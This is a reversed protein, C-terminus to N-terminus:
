EFRLRELLSLAEDFEYRSVLEYLDLIIKNDKISQISKIEDILVLSDLDSHELLEKLEDFMDKHSIDVINNDKKSQAEIVQDIEKIEIKKAKQRNQNKSIDLTITFYFNSGRNKESDVSISGHMLEVLKKVISLGLGTGGFRRTTSNDEQTFAEFLRDINDKEIGIGTDEVSLYLEVKDYEIYKISETITINGGKPTFKIANSILNILIQELRLSDGLLVLDINEDTVFKLDVGKKEADFTMISSINDFINYVSFDIHELEIKNAELKSVDLLSNVISLLMKSSKNAKQLMQKQKEDTISQLVINTMNLIVNIPTRVEHSINALLESKVSNAQQAHEKAVINEKLLKQLNTNLKYIREQKKVIEEEYINFAQYISELENESLGKGGKSIKSKILESTKNLKRTLYLTFISIVIFLSVVSAVILTEFQSDLKKEEAIIYSKPVLKFIHAKFNKLHVYEKFVLYEKDEIDVINNDALYEFNLKDVDINQTTVEYFGDNYHILSITDDVSDVITSYQFDQMMFKGIIVGENQGNQRNKTPISISLILKELSKDHYMDSFYTDNYLLPKRFVDKNFLFKSSDKNSDLESVSLWEYSNQAVASISILSLYQKMYMEFLPRLTEKDKDVSSIVLSLTKLKEEFDKVSRLLLDRHHINQINIDNYIKKITDQKHTHKIYALIIYFVVM